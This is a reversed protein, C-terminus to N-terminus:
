RDACWRERRGGAYPRVPANALLWQGLDTGDALMVEALVRGYYKGGGINVLRVPAAGLRRGLAARAARALRREAACRGRMEPADVGRLRVAVEVRQGPWIRASVRVTDGDIVEVVDALVPGDIREGALGHGGSLAVALLAAFASPLPLLM